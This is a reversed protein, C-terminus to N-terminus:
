QRGYRIAWTAIAVALWALTAIGLVLGGPWTGAAGWTVLAFAAMGLSGLCAGRADDVAEARGEHQKVFTLNAPPIAPFALFLGGIGPGFHHAALGTGAAVIGGFVFRVGYEWPATNKLGRPEIAPMM